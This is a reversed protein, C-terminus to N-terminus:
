FSIFILYLIRTSECRTTKRSMTTEKTLQSSFASWGPQREFCWPSMWSFNIEEPPANVLARLELGRCQVFMLDLGWSPQPLRARPTLSVYRPMRLHFMLDTQSARLVTRKWNNIKRFSGFLISSFPNKQMQPVTPQIFPLYAPEELPPPLISLSSKM